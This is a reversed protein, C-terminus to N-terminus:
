RGEVSFALLVNGPLTGYNTYGSNVYLMGGAIVAGPGDLSGGQGAAGNVTTYDQVTDVDWIIEGTRASYARLHGDLGGSFVVGPIATVAASQAPSCGPKDNCGPHPTRWVVEGTALKLAFLGGGKRPDMKLEGGMITKQAGPTGPAARELGVDSVSVYVNEDDVAMGWQVGGLASGQGIRRQWLIAGGHDPDLAHVVGSKQGAILARKGDALDVLIASSGFDFDPGKNDPCNARYQSTCAVNYADSETMQRSWKLKGNVLDFAVFADSTDQAPNSYSDGTTAYVTNTQLDVTPASWIAGGSPGFLQVGMSSIGQPGPPPSVYSRWKVEGTAASLAVILGRFSCCGYRPDAALAEELSSVPVYLIGDALTPAGTIMAAQHDEVRRTWKLKGTEADLAYVNGRQDGFYATFGRGDEGITVASRVGFGADFVWRQCGTRADLAYVKGGASGVFLRGGWVTPQAFARVDGPFAFAWKLKLRPVDHAALLASEAPQFRHQRIDVGWGNWRPLAPDALKPGEDRCSSDPLEIAPPPANGKLYRTIAGIQDKSLDRGQASMLGYAIQFGIRQENLQRLANRDPARAAGGEHCSACRQEYLAEGSPGAAEEAGPSSIGITALLLGTSLQLWVFRVPIKSTM